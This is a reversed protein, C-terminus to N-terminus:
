QAEDAVNVDKQRYAWFKNIIFNLPISVVMNLIQGAYASFDKGSMAHGHNALFDLIGGCFRSVDIIDIWLYLLINNLILGTFAYAMYTKLLVQWWVRKEGDEDAKFVFLNQWVYANLVSIIWAIVSALLYNKSANYVLAYIIYSVLTNSVGVLGFKIFQIIGGKFDKKKNDEMSKNVKQICWM